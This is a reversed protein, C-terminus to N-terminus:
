SKSLLIKLIEPRSEAYDIAKFGGKNETFPDLGKEMLLKVTEPTGNLVALHLPNNGNLYLEKPDYGAKLLIKIINDQKYSIALHLLSFKRGLSKPDIPIKNLILFELLSANGKQIALSALTMDEDDLNLGFKILLEIIKKNNNFTSSIDNLFQSNEKLLNPNAKHELLIKVKSYSEKQFALYLPYISDINKINPDFGKKLLESVMTDSGHLISKELYNFDTGERLCKPNLKLKEQAMLYLFVTDDDKKISLSFPTNGLESCFNIDAGKELIYPIIKISNNLIAYDLITSFNNDVTNISFGQKFFKDLGQKDQESIVRHLEDSFPKASEKANLCICPALLIAVTLTLNVYFTQM